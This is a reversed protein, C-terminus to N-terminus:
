NPSVFSFENLYRSWEKEEELVRSLSPTQSRMKGISVGVIIIYLNCCTYRTRPERLGSRGMIYILEKYQIYVIRSEVFSICLFFSLEFLDNWNVKRKHPYIM